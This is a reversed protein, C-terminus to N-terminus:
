QSDHSICRPNLSGIHQNRAREQWTTKPRRAREPCPRRGRAAGAGRKKRWSRRARCKRADLEAEGSGECAAGHWGRAPPEPLPGVSSGRARTRTVHQRRRAGACTFKRVPCACEGPSPLENESAVVSCSSNAVSERCVRPGPITNKSM